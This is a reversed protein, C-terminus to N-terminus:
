SVRRTQEGARRGGAYVAAVSVRALRPYEPERRDRPRHEQMHVQLIDISPHGSLVATKCVGCVAKILTMRPGCSMM